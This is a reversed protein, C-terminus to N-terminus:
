GRNCVDVVTVEVDEDDGIPVAVYIPQSGSLGKVSVRLRQPLVLAVAGERVDRRAHGLM